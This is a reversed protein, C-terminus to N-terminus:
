SKEPRSMNWTKGNDGSVYISGAYYEQNNPAVVYINDGQAFVVSPTDYYVVPGLGPQERYLGATPM